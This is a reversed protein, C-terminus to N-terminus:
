FKLFIVGIGLKAHDITWGVLFKSMSEFDTLKRSHHPEELVLRFSFESSLSINFWDFFVWDSHSVGFTSYILCHSTLLHLFDVPVTSWAVVTVDDKSSSVVVWVKLLKCVRSSFHLLKVKDLNSVTVVDVAGSMTIDPKWWSIASFFWTSEFLPVLACVQFVPNMFVEQRLHEHHIFSVVDLSQGFHTMIQDQPGVLLNGLSIM